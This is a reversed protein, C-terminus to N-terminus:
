AREGRLALCASISLGIALLGEVMFTGVSQIDAQMGLVIAFLGLLAVAVLLKKM